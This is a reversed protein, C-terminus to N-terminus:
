NGYFHKAKTSTGQDVEHINIKISGGTNYIITKESTPIDKSSTEGIDNLLFINACRYGTCRLNTESVYTNNKKYENNNYKRIEKIDKATLVVTYMPEKDVLYSNGLEQIDTKAQVYQDTALNYWNTSYSRTNPFPNELDITRYYVGLGSKSSDEGPLDCGGNHSCDYDLLQNYVSYKCTYKGSGTKTSVKKSAGRFSYELTIYYSGDKRYASVPYINTTLTDPDYLERWGMLKDQVNEKDKLMAVKGTLLQTAFKTGQYYQEEYEFRVDASQNSPVEIAENSCGETNCVYRYPKEKGGNTTSSVSSDCSSCITNTSDKSYSVSLCYVCWFPFM